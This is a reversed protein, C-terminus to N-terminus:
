GTRLITRESLVDGQRVARWKGEPDSGDFRQAVGSVSVVVVQDALVDDPRAAEAMQVAPQTAPTGEQGYTVSTTSMWALLCIAHGKLVRRAAKSM